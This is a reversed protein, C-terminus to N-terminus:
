GSVSLLRRAGTPPPGALPFMIVATLGFWDGAPGSKRAPSRTDVLQDVKGVRGRVRRAPSRKWGIVLESGGEGAMAGEGAIAGEGAMGNDVAPVSCGTVGILSGVCAPSGSEAGVGSDPNTGGARRHALRAAASVTPVDPATSANTALATSTSTTAPIVMNLVDDDVADGTASAVGPRNGAGAVGTTLPPCGTVTAGM